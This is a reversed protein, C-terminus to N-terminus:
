YVYNYYFTPSFQNGRMGSYLSFTTTFCFPLNTKVPSPHFRCSRVRHGSDVWAGPPVDPIVLVQDRDDSGRLDGPPGSNVSRPESVGGDLTEPLDALDAGPAVEGRQINLRNLLDKM